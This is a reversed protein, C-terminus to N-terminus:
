TWGVAEALTAARFRLREEIKELAASEGAEFAAARIAIGIDTLDPLTASDPHVAREKTALEGRRYRAQAAAVLEEVPRQLPSRLEPPLSVKMKAVNVRFLDDLSPQFEVAARAFKTHEDIARMGAWGGAQILRDARYIYLGQQRNWRDPGAYREFAQQSTFGDRHPLVFPRFSVVSHRTGLSFQKVPLADTMPESRAFPDWPEVTEGNVSIKILGRGAAEGDIFRHFVMGLHESTAAALRALRRRGHAGISTLGNFVRDLNAWVVVTGPATELREILQEPLRRSPVDLAAWSDTRAIYDLDIVRAHIRRRAAAARTIVILRRCQSLSATKLGLGYRGLENSGYSRRTGFRLAENLVKPTM